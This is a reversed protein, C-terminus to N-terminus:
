KTQQITFSGRCMCIYIHIVDCYCSTFMRQMYLLGVKIGDVCLFKKSNRELQTVIAAGQARLYVVLFEDDDVDKFIESVLPSINKSERWRKHHASVIPDDAPTHTTLICVRAIRVCM